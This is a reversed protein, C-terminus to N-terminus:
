LSEISDIDLYKFNITLSKRQFLFYYSAINLLYLVIFITWSEIIIDRIIIQNHLKLKGDECKTYNVIPWVDNIYQHWFNKFTISENNGTLSYLVTFSYSFALYVIYTYRFTVFYYCVAIATKLLEILDLLSSPRFIQYTNQLPDDWILLSSILLLSIFIIGILVLNKRRSNDITVHDTERLYELFNM